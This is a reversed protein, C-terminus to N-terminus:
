TVAARANMVLWSTALRHAAADQLPAAADLQAGNSNEADGKLGGWKLSSSAPESRKQERWVAAMVVPWPRDKVEHWHLVELDTRDDLGARKLTEAFTTPREETLWLAKTQTTPRSLFQGGTLV